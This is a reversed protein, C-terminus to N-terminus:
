ANDSFITKDLVGYEDFSSRITLWIACLVTIATGTLIAIMIAIQYKIAEQPDNGGLIVGTMMGPLSVLGITAMSAITPTMAARVSERLYPRLAEGLRAGQALTNLYAREAKRLTMYFDRIGVINARLCNGMIMGALPIAYQAELPATRGLVVHVFFVLPVSTGLLLAAFVPAAFRRLRLDVSRVISVDAVAIMVLIWAGNVWPNKLDFIFQLYFGVFLLQVTMRVLAILTRKMMPIKLWLMISLPVLMLLYILALNGYSVPELM